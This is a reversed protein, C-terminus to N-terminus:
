TSAATASAQTLGSAKSTAEDLLLMNVVEAFAVKREGVDIKSAFVKSANERKGMILIVLLEMLHVIHAKAAGATTLLEHIKELYRLHLNKIFFTVGFLIKSENQMSLSRYITLFENFFQTSQANLMALM